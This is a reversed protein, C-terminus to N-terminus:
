SRGKGIRAELESLVHSQLSEVDGAVLADWACQVRWAVSLLDSATTSTADTRRLELAKDLCAWVIGSVAYVVQRDIMRGHAQAGAGEQNAQRNLHDLCEIIDAVIDDLSPVVEGRQTQFIFEALTDRPIDDGTTPLGAHQQLRLLSANKTTM